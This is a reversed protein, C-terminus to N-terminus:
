LSARFKPNSGYENRTPDTISVSAQATCGNADTATVSYGGAHLASATATIDGNSWAYTYSGTGGAATATASGTENGACDANNVNGITVTLETPETIVIGEVSDTCGNADTVTVSYTGAAINQADEANAIPQPVPGGWNYNYPATGGNTQMYIYGDSGGYCSVNITFNETLSLVDPEGIMVEESEQCGNADTVTVSHTGASLGTATVTTQGNSWAYGYPTTGGTAYVTATGDSGGNCSVDTSTVVDAILLTPEDVTTHAVVPCLNADVALFTHSGASLGTVITAYPIHQGLLVNNAGIYGVLTYPATGGIIGLSVSGDDGGNCSVDSVNIIDFILGNPDSITM